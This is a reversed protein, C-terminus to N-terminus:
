PQYQGRKGRPLDAWSGTPPMAWQHSWPRRTGCTVPCLRQEKLHMRQANLSHMMNIWAEVTSDLNRVISLVRYPSFLKWGEQWPRWTVLTPIDTCNSCVPLATYLCQNAAKDCKDQLWWRHLLNPRGTYARWWKLWVFLRDWVQM